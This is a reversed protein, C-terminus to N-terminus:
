KVKEIIMLTISILEIFLGDPDQILIFDSEGAKVPCDGLLPINNEKIRKLVPEISKVYITIYQIGTDDHIYKQKPHTSKGKFTTIKLETAVPTDELKLQTVKFSKGDTLGSSKGFDSNVTFEGVEKMGIVNKYFALTKDYDSANIAMKITGSAFENTKQNSM